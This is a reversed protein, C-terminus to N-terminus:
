GWRISYVATSFACVGVAFAIWWRYPHVRVLRERWATVGIAFLMLPNLFFGAIAVPILSIGIIALWVYRV